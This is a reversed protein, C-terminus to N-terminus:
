KRVGLFRCLAGCNGDFWSLYLGRESDDVDLYPVYRDDDADRWVSGLAVIPFKTQLEPFLFGLVLLEMATAPRFGDKDMESIADESSIDWNFHFLKASVEVKKGVMEPSIPFNESTVNSNKYDYNGDSIVQEVTKTYDITLKIEDGVSKASERKQNEILEIVQTVSLNENEMVSTLKQLETNKM